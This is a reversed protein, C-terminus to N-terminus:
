KSNQNTKNASTPRTYPAGRGRGRGRGRNSPGQGQSDFSKRNGAGATKTQTNNPKSQTKNAYDPLGGQRLDRFTQNNQAQNRMRNHYNNTDIHHNNKHTNRYYNQGSNTSMEGLGMLKTMNKVPHEKNRETINDPFLKADWLTSRLLSLQISNNHHDKLVIKRIKMKAFMWTSIAEKLNPLLTRAIAKVQNSSLSNMRRTNEDIRDIKEAFLDLSHLSTFTNIMNGRANREAALFNEPVHPNINLNLQTNILRVNLNVDKAFAVFSSNTFNWGSTFDALTVPKFTTKPFLKILEPGKNDFVADIMQTDFKIIQELTAALGSGSDLRTEFPIRPAGFENPSVTRNFTSLLISHGERGDIFPSSTSAAASSITKFWNPYGVRYQVNCTRPGEPTMMEIKNNDKKTHQTPDFLVWTDGTNCDTVSQQPQAGFPPYPFPTQQFHHIPAPMSPMPYTMNYALPRGYIDYHPMPYPPAQNQYAPLNNPYFNNQYMNGQDDNISDYYGHGNTRTNNTDVYQDSSNNNTGDQRYPDDYNDTSEEQNYPDYYEGANIRDEDERCTHDISQVEPLDYDDFFTNAIDWYEWDIDLVQNNFQRTHELLDYMEQFFKTRDDDSLETVKGKQETCDNCKNPEWEEKGSCHRHYACLSHGWIPSRESGSCDSCKGKTKSIHKPM